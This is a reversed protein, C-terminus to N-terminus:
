LGHGLPGQVFEGVWITIALLAFCHWHMWEIDIAAAFEDVASWDVREQDGCYKSEGGEIDWRQPTIHHGGVTADEVVAVVGAGGGFVEAGGAVDFVAALAGNRAAVDGVAPELDVVDVWDVVAAFGSEAVDFGFAGGVVM